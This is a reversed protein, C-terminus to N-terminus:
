ELLYLTCLWCVTAPSPLIIVLLLSHYVLERQSTLLSSQRRTLHCHSWFLLPQKPHCSVTYKSAGSLPTYNSAWLAITLNCICLSLSGLRWMLLPGIVAPMFDQSRGHIMLMIILKHTTSSSVVSIHWSSYEVMECHIYGKLSYRLFPPLKSETLYSQKEAAM